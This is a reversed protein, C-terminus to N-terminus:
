PRSLRIDDVYVTGTGGAVTTNGPTGLGVTISTVNALSVGQATFTSLPIVWETYSTLQAANANTNYVPAKGNISVYMREAANTADGRFWLSLNAVSERTWDRGATLTRTAQSSKRNNDYALPMAQSGGHVYARRTEAFPPNMNGVVAGNTTTGYGDIWSLYIRNSGAAKEDLDNYAEFDDVVLYNAVSFSWVAGTTITGDAKVEDVRWYYPGSGWALVETPTYSALARRGRYVGTTDSANANGVAAQDTGFYVDHQTANDGASWTLGLKAKEVDVTSRNDPSPKWALRPDGRMLQKVEDATLAKNYIRVDDVEGMYFDSPTSDDWEQGISWRTVVPSTWTFNSSYTARQAGDVYIYAASGNRVYTLMHWLGDNIAPPYQEDGGDWRYPNGGQIGFMLAYDSASSNAAFLNGESGQTTKIWASLTINTGTIDNVVGDIAVYDSGDLDLAGDMIGDIWEPDGGFTGDNGHGSFDIAKKGYGEDFKWWGVLDPNTIVIDALTTFSWVDGKHTVASDFEDVRWYYTKGKVLPGAPTYTTVARAAGGTANSVTDFNDGFHVYHLRAGLGPTWKLVVATDVFKARDPPEPNYAKQPPVTFSWVPGRWPSNPDASNVEDVRWYYTTGPVLGDPYPYGFFGAMFMPTPQNGRFTGGTGANVDDFNEGLYVDHSVAFDGPRWSLSVWTEIQIAGDPPTPASAPGYGGIGMMLPPIEEASLARDFIAVDDIMGDFYTGAEKSRKGITVSATNQPMKGVYAWEEAFVGDIYCKFIQGDYTGTIHHWENAAPSNPQCGDRGQDNYFQWFIIDGRNETLEYPLDNAAWGGKSVIAMEGSSTARMNTWAAITIADTLSLSASHPIEVFDGNGNFDLASGLQGTVWKPNGKLTGNNGQGSSDAAVTGAGEDFKWYGVLGASASNATSATILVLVASVVCTLVRSM